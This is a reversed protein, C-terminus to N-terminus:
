VVCVCVSCVLSVPDKTNEKTEEEKKEEEEDEEEEELLAGKSFEDNYKKEEKKEVSEYSEVNGGMNLCLVRDAHLSFHRHHTVLVVSKNREKSLWLVVDNFLRRSVNPDVASLPDDLLYLNADAYCARALAVRACQGGSLNVGKEGIETLDGDSLTAIDEDLQCRRLIEDYKRQDFTSSWVINARLTGIM